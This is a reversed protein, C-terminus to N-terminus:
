GEIYSPNQAGNAAIFKMDLKEGTMHNLMTCEGETDVYLGGFIINKALLSPRACSIHENFKKNIFDFVGGERVELM